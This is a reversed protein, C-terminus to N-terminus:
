EEMKKLVQEGNDLIEVYNNKKLKVNTIKNIYDQFFESKIEDDEPNFKEEVKLGERILYAFRSTFKTCNISSLSIILCIIYFFNM